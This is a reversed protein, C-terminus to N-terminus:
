FLVLVKHLSEIQFISITVKKIYSHLISYYMNIIVKLGIIKINQVDFTIWLEHTKFCSFSSTTTVQINQHQFNQFNKFTLVKRSSSLSNSTCHFKYCWKQSWRGLKQQLHCIFVQYDAAVSGWGVKVLLAMLRTDWWVWWAMIYLM